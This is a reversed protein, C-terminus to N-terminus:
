VCTIAYVTAGAPNGVPHERVIRRADLDIEVVRSPLKRGREGRLLLRLVERHMTSRLQTMGVWATRGVVAIGRCWGLMQDTGSLERLDLAEIRELTEPDHAVIRGDVTTFWMAGEQVAGDHPIGPLEISRASDLSVARRTEFCTVWREGGAVFACNPHHSHPKLADHHLTRFDVIGPYAQSFGDVGRLWRHEILSGDDAIELVSENAACSLLVGGGPRREASHVGAMWPHSVRGVVALTRPDVRFLQTHTPQLLVDGDLSARTAEDDAGPGSALEPDFPLRTERLVGREPDLEILWPRLPATPAGGERLGM